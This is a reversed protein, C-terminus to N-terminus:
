NGFAFCGRLTHFVVPRNIGIRDLFLRLVVGAQDNKWDSFTPLVHTESSREHWLSRLLGALKSNIDM